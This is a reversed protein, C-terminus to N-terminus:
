GVGGTPRLSRMPAQRVPGESDQGDNRRHPTVWGLRFSCIVMVVIARRIVPPDVRVEVHVHRGGEVFSARQETDLAKGGGTGAVLFQLVPQLAQAGELQDTDFAGAAVPGSQGPVEKGALDSDDLDVPGVALATPARSLGVRV